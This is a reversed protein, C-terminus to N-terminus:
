QGFEEELFDAAQGPIQAARVRNRYMPHDTNREDRRRKIVKQIAFTVVFELHYAWAHYDRPKKEDIYRHQEATLCEAIRAAAPIHGKVCLEPDSEASSMIRRSLLIENVLPQLEYLTATIRPWDHTHSKWHHACHGQIAGPMMCGNARCAHSPKAPAAPPRDHEDMSAANFPKRTAM